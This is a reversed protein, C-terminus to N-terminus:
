YAEELKILTMTLSYEQMLEDYAIEVSDSDIIFLGSKSADITTDDVWVFGFPQWTNGFAEFFSRFTSEYDTAGSAGNWRFNYTHKEILRNERASNYNPYKVGVSTENRYPKQQFTLDKKYDQTYIPVNFAYGILMDEITHTLGSPNVFRTTFHYQEDKSLQLLVNMEGTTTDVKQLGSSSVVNWGGTDYKLSSISIGSASADLWQLYNNAGWPSNSTINRIYVYGAQFRENLILDVDTNGVGSITVTTDPDSDFLPTYIGSPNGEQMKTTYWYPVVLYISSAM